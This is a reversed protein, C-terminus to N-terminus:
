LACVVTSATRASSRATPLEDRAYRMVPSLDESVTRM